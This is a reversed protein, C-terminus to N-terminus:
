PRTVTYTVTGQYHGDAPLTQLGYRLDFNQWGGTNEGREIIQPYSTFREWGSKDAEARWMLQAAADAESAPVYSASLQWASNAMVQVSSGAPAIEFAGDAVRISVDVNAQDQAVDDDIKLRLINPVSISVDHGASKQAAAINALGLVVLVFFVFGRRM